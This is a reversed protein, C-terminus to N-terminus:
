PQRRLFLDLIYTFSMMLRLTMVKVSLNTIKQKSDFLLGIHVAATLTM